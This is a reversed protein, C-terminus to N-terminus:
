GTSVIMSLAALLLLALESLLLLTLESLLLESLELLRDLEDSLLLPVCLLELLELDDLLWLEDLWLALLM